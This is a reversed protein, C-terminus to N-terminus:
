LGDSVPLLAFAHRASRRPGKEGDNRMGRLHYEGSQRPGSGRPGPQCGSAPPVYHREIQGPAWSHLENFGVAGFDGRDPETGPLQAPSGARAQDLLRELEAIAVDVGRLDILVFALDAFAQAGRPDAAVLHEDGGLDPGGM